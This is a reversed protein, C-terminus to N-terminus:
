EVLVLEGVTGAKLVPRIGVVQGNKSAAYIMADKTNTVFFTYDTKRSRFKEQGSAKDVAVIVNGKNLLYTYKDDESLMQRADEAVWRPKRNYANPDQSVKDIAVVGQGPVRQYVMSATVVPSQILPNGAFYQWRIQATTPNLCYLKSDSSAVYVGYDDAQVDAVIRGATTFVGPPPWAAARSAQVVSYVNGDESGAYVFGKNTAPAASVRGRTMLQWVVGVYSATLDILTVRGGGEHDLGIVVYQGNGVGASSINDDLDLTKLRRGSRDFVELTTNTPFVVYKGTVIPPRLETDYNTPKIASVVLGDGSLEYVRDQQTYVFLMGERLHLQTVADKKELKLAAGWQKVFSNAPVPGLETKAAPQRQACGALLAASVIGIMLQKNM